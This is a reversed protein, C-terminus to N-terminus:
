SISVLPLCIQSVTSHIFRVKVFGPRQMAAYLAGLAPVFVLVGSVWGDSMAMGVVEGNRDKPTLSAM